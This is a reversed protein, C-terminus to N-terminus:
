PRLVRRLFDKTRDHNPCSFITEPRDDEVIRGEDMFIVRDAIESAFGMEHTVIVLTMETRHAVDRIV